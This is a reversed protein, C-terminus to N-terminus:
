NIVRRIGKKLIPTNFNLLLGLKFKGLRLYTLTQALHIDNLSDVSKIEIVIKNEVLIDIRYGHNLKVEKYVIPMPVERQISLEADELEYALCEQYASELLGPGLQKHINIACGIIIQTLQNETM